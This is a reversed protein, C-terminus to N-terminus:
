CPSSWDCTHCWLAWLNPHSLGGLGSPAHRQRSPRAAQATRHDTRSLFLQTLLHLDSSRDQDITVVKQASSGLLPHSAWDRWLPSRSSRRMSLLLSLHVPCRNGIGGPRRGIDRLQGPLAKFDEWFLQPSTDPSFSTHVSVASAKVRAWITPHLCSWVDGPHRTPKEQQM